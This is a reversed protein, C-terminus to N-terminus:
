IRAEEAKHFVRRAAEKLAEQGGYKIGEAFGLGFMSEEGATLGRDGHKFALSRLRVLAERKAEDYTDLM